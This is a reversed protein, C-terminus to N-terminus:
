VSRTAIEPAVGSARIAPAVAALVGTIWLALSGLVLLTVDIKPVDAWHVLGYNLAYTFAIGIGIGIGTIMWNEILFYRVIDTKTAGLARRTGIQRTRQTVSFSTLGVIGLATVALLLAIVSTLMKIMVLSDQYYGMKYETLTEVEIIRGAHTELMLPELESYVSELAGPETRVMFRMRRMDSPRGPRLMLGEGHQAFQSRPWSNHMRRIVGVITDVIEGGSNRIQQGVANSDPFLADATAQTVIINRGEENETGEEPVEYDSPLFDRGAVLEVGLASLANDSVVFYPVGTGHGATPEDMLWRTTNSGGGSLPIARIAVADVVGPFGRLRRLDEEQVSYIFDDDKFAPDFPKTDIVLLNAEDLGTERLFERRTDLLMNICNVVIALTLAVELTILWFRSKNHM